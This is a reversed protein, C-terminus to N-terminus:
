RVADFILVEAEDKSRALLARYNKRDRGTLKFEAQMAADWQV